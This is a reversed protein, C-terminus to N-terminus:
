VRRTRISGSTPTFSICMKTAANFAHSFADVQDDEADGVGTFSQMEHLFDALWPAEMPVEVRGDNWAAAAAQARQFKDGVVPAERVYLKPDLRKLMQPVAKFGGVAEVFVPARGYKTSLMQLASVFSPVEVQARYIELVRARILGDAMRSGLVIAASHDATTKGSAAPDAGIVVRWGGWGEAPNYYVPIGFVKSGRPRPRGQYLAAFSWEGLTRRILGLEDLPFLKPWLAEGPERGVPDDNEAVAPLNIIEWGGLGELRGILDDPHWRTHVVIVSGGELRTFAVEKFWNWVTERLTPSDAEMRDKFPDDVILMGSVGQGTLASGRGGAILGGGLVTKWESVATSSPNLEIGVSIALDRAIGSKSAALDDNYSYYACRDAPTNSLWWVIAHLLTWTKGHRPPMSICLRVRKHRAREIADILPDLHRAPPHQPSVRAIFSRLDEAGHLRELIIAEEVDLPDLQEEGEAEM